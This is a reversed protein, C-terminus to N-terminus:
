VIVGLFTKIPCFFRSADISTTTGIMIEITITGINRGTGDTGSINTRTVIAATVGPIRAITILGRKNTDRNLM